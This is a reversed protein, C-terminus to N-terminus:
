AGGKAWQAKLYADLEQEEAMKAAMAPTLKVVRGRPNSLRRLSRQPAPVSFSIPKGEWRGTLEVEAGVLSHIRGREGCPASEIVNTPITSVFDNKDENLAKGDADVPRLRFHYSVGYQGDISWSRIVIARYTDRKAFTKATTTM